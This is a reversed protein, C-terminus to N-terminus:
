MSTFTNLLTSPPDDVYGTCIIRSTHKRNGCTTKSKKSVVYMYMFSQISCTFPSCKILALIDRSLFIHLSLIFPYNKLIKQYKILHSLHTCERIRNKVTYTCKHLYLIKKHTLNWTHTLQSNFNYNRFLKNDYKTCCSIM